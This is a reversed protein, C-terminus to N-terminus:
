ERLGTPLEIRVTEGTELPVAIRRQALVRVPRDIRAPIDQM